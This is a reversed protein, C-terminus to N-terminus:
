IADIVWKLDEAREVPLATFVGNVGRLELGTMEPLDLGTEAAELVAQSVLAEVGLAKTQSELRSTTNVTDGILTRPAHGGAGIHGLVVQGLHLGIGIRVPESGERRLEENFATLAAGIGHAARLGARASSRTDETEFLALLGDGLYKDVQGGASLIPPVVADFFRNLLFVVDYPLQGTTRATFGRMDLFLVALQREQGQRGRVRRRRGDQRFVRFVTLGTTPRVQCALRTNAPAKVAMLSRAEAPEPPHLHEAGSEVIVRCTTCRGRGGCLATHPVRAARSMELLTPGPVSAIKPGDVYAIRVSRRGRLALRLLHLLVVLAFCAFIVWWIRDSLAILRQFGAQDPWHYLAQLGARQEPDAFRAAVRRGETLYGALAFGPVLAVFGCYWPFVQRWVPLVRLWFHLGICGHGWVVLLLLSQWVGDRTGWILGILYGYQDRVGLLDHAFRTFVIHEALLFPIALGLLIQAWEGAPMRLVRRRTLRWAGLLPHVLLASFLLLEGPLSRTVVHRAAQFRDMLETSFLGMGINLFHFFAYAFLILGSAIRLQAARSGRWLVHTM